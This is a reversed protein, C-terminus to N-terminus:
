IERLTLSLKGLTRKTEIIMFQLNNWTASNHGLPTTPFMNNEDFEIVDGVEVPDNNSDIWKAPNLVDCQVIIKIDGFIHNYYAAFSDNQDDNTPDTDGINAVLMDLNVNAKNEKTQINWKGRSTSNAAVVNSQYRNLAPHKDYNITQNTIIDSFPTIGISINSIDNKSLVKTTTPSDAIHIYQPKTFDGQKFRFIFAGEYQMQELVKKLPKEELLWYRIAWGNRATNLASYGDINTAPNTAVDLGTFRNLLDLHAEHIDTITGSLGTIGNSMGNGGSYLFDISDLKNYSSQAEDASFPLKVRVDLIIDSNFGSINNGSKGDNLNGYDWLATHRVNIHDPLKGGTIQGVLDATTHTAVGTTSGDYGLTQASTGTTTNSAMQTYTSGGDLQLYKMNSTLTGNSANGDIVSYGSLQLKVYTVKGDIQPISAKLDLSNNSSGASGATPTFNVAAFSATTSVDVATRSSNDPTDFANYPNTTFENGDYPSEPRFKFARYLNLPASIANGNQYSFTNDSFTNGSSNLLPVFADVNKEYLHPVASANSNASNSTDSEPMLCYLKETDIKHVPVPFLKNSQNACEGYCFAPTSQTSINAQYDGYVLPFYEAIGRDNNSLVTKAQPITIFDWPRHSALSLTITSGNSKIDVLRFNGIVVPTDNAIKSSVQVSHNIYLNSGGFLENSILTGKYEFDPINISINSTKATSNKLDIGERISPQNLIAGYHFHGSDIVDNFALYVHVDSGGGDKGSIDFLWNEVLNSLKIHDTFGM